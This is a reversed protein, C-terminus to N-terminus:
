RGILQVVISRERPRNDHDILIIQQWTGLQLKGSAFPVTLSPGLMAARVHSYGNNDGWTADHHYRRDHPVLQDLVEPIDKRLGPEYETTTISATSGTVFITVIGDHLKSQHLIKEVRETIDVVQSEGLTSVFIRETIVEM